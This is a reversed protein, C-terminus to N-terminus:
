LFSRAIGADNIVCVFGRGRGEWGGEEEGPGTGHSFSILKVFALHKEKIFQVGTAM